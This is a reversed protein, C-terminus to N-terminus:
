VNHRLVGGDHDLVEVREVEPGLEASVAAKGGGEGLVPCSDGVGV